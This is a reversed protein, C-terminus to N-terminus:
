VDIIQFSPIVEVNGKLTGSVSCYNELSLKIADEVAKESIGSGKIHYEVNINPIARPPGQVMEGSVHIEVEMLDQRKKQLINVVGMATCSGLAVLMLELPNMGTNNDDDQSSIVVSHKSSDIGVFQKDKLWVVSANAEM